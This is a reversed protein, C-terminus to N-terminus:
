GVPFRDFWPDAFAGPKGKARWQATHLVCLEGYIDIAERPDRAIEVSCAGAERQARRVQGRTQGSLQALYGGGRARELDVHYATVEREIKVKLKGHSARLDGFAHVDLAPLFLEDWGRPLVGLLEALSLPRGVVGNYEIWLLDLRPVGTVNLFLARTPLVRHRLVLRRGLFCAAVPAGGDRIVALAPVLAPPVCALWNEIWGSSLFYPTPSQAELERWIRMAGPANADLLDLKV